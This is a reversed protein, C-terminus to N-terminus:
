CCLMKGINDFYKYRDLLGARLLSDAQEETIDATLNRTAHTQTRLRHIPLTESLAVGYVVGIECQIDDRLVQWCEVM